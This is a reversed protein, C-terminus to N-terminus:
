APIGFISFDVEEYFWFDLFEEAASSVLPEGQGDLLQPVGVDQGDADKFRRKSSGDLYQFGRDLLKCVWTDRKYHFEYSVKYYTVDNEVHPGTASINAVKMKWKAFGMFTSQNISNYYAEAVSPNFQSENRTVILIGRADDKEPLPDFQDGASNVVPNGDRDKNAAVQIIQGNWSYEAPRLLPNEVYEKYRTSYHVTVLWLRDNESLRKADKKIARARTDQGHRDGRAPVGTATLVAYATDTSVSMEVLYERKYNWVGEETQEGDDGQGTENLAVLPM